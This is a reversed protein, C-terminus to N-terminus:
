GGYEAKVIKRMDRVMEQIADLRTEIRALRESSVYAAATKEQLVALKADQESKSHAVWYIGLTLHVLVTVVLSINQASWTTTNPANNTRHPM